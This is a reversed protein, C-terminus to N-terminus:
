CLLNRCSATPLCAYKHIPSPAPSVELKRFDVNVNKPYKTLGADMREVIESKNIVISLDSIPIQSVSRSSETQGPFHPAPVFANTLVEVIWFRRRSHLPEFFVKANPM